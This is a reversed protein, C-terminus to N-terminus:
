VHIQETRRHTHEIAFLLFDTVLAFGPYFHVANGEANGEVILVIYIDDKLNVLWDKSRDTFPCRCKGSFIGLTAIWHDFLIKTFLSLLLQAESDSLSIIQRFKGLLPHAM